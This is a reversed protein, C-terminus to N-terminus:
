LMAAHVRGALLGYSRPHIHDHRPAFRVVRDGHLRAVRAVTAAAVPDIPSIWIVKGAARARISRLNSELLPNRPDNSGASVVLVNAHQVRGIVEVSPIGITANVECRRLQQGVGLAISDGVVACDIM